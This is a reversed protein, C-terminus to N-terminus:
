CFNNRLSMVIDLERGQLGPNRSFKRKMRLLKLITEDDLDNFFEMLEDMDRLGMDDKQAQVYPWTQKRLQAVEEELQRIRPLLVKTIVTSVEM